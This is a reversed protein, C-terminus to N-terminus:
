VLCLHRLALFCALGLHGGVKSEYVADILTIFRRAKNRDKLSLQPIDCLILVDIARCLELYDAASLAEGCAQEFSMSVVRNAYAPLMLIRGLFSLTRPRIPIGQALHNHWDVMLATTTPGSPLYVPLLERERMRYDVGSNLAHVVCREQLMDIVPLFSARQLGNKYLETPHRNSTIVMVMGRAFLQTFLSRLLMADAIDTVQLEDFCLIWAERVTEAAIVPIADYAIGYQQRLAHTRRHVWQMFAHFHIRRKRDMHPPLSSYLLDMVMSKGTGVDGHLYLGRPATFTLRPATKRLPKGHAPDDFLNSLMNPMFTSSVSTDEGTPPTTQSLQTYLTQLLEVTRVQHVDYNLKGSAV